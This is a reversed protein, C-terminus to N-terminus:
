VLSYIARKVFSWYSFATFVQGLTSWGVNMKIAADKQRQVTCEVAIYQLQMNISIIIKMLLPPPLANLKKHKEIETLKEATTKQLQEKQVILAKYEETRQEIEKDLNECGTKCKNIDYFEYLENAGDVAAILKKIGNQVDEDDKERLNNLTEELESIDNLLNANFERLIKEEKRLDSLYSASSVTDNQLELQRRKVAAIERMVEEQQAHIEDNEKICKNLEEEITFHEQQLIDLAESIENRMESNLESLGFDMISYKLFQQHMIMNSFKQHSTPIQSPYFGTSLPSSGNWYNRPQSMLHPHGMTPVSCFTNAQGGNAVPHQNGTSPLCLFKAQMAAAHRYNSFIDSSYSPIPLQLEPLSAQCAQALGHFEFKYAYRKGHVKTMINKDYYYRLARSLKDYNMNPKSKREGWRRAVEEPDILKFEGNIGEWTIFAANSNDSLLELLFQWLQIQGTGSGHHNSSTLGGVSASTTSYRINYQVLHRHNGTSTWSARPTADYPTCTTSVNSAVGQMPITSGDNNELFPFPTEQKIQCFVGSPSTFNPLIQAM